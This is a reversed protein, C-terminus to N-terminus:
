FCFAMKEENREINTRCVDFDVWCIGLESNALNYRDLRDALIVSVGIMEPAYQM